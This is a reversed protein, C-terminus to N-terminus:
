HNYRLYAIRINKVLSKSSQWFTLFAALLLLLSMVPLAELLSLSFNQWSVAVFSFDSFLLSFFQLFGSSILDSQFARFVLMLILMSGGTTLSYLVIKRKISLLREEKRLRAIIRGFLESPLGPQDFHYSKHKNGPM